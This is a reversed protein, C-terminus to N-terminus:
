DRCDACKCEHRIVEVHSQLMRTLEEIADLNSTNSIVLDFLGLALANRAENARDNLGKIEELKVQNMRDNLEVAM